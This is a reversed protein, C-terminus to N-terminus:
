AQVPPGPMFLSSGGDLVLVQGTIFHVEDSALFLAAHGVDWAEPQHGM